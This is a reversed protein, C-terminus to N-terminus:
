VTLPDVQIDLRLFTLHSSSDGQFRQIRMNRSLGQRFWVLRKLRDGIIGADIEIAQSWVQGDLSYDTSIKPTVGQAVSGTLTVLELENFILGKNENFIIQTGFEWRVKQGWHEGTSGTLYGINSSTPDGVRWKGYAFVMHRARFKSNTSLYTSSLISWVPTGLVASASGDYVLSQDDLHVYLMESGRDNRYEIEVFSLEATTYQLLIEEIERTAIKQTQGSAAIYISVQEHRGGGVFALQDGYECVAKTGIAGKQIQAGSIRQFPFGTGGINRFVEITYRNVAHPENRIKMLAVIEDPDIESSGYKTPDISTPDSLDTVILFEGDTTMFYGDVWILDVVTGLDPDTVQTLTSGDWYFLNSNSGIALRDFSYDFSVPSSDDGVDGLTTVNGSADISVLKSGMVRYLVENWLIGGRDIGTGTGDLVIGDAPRLYSNSVGSAEAVPTLNLPYSTRLSPSDDTFIGSLIPVQM